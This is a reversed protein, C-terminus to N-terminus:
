FIGLFDLPIAIIGLFLFLLGGKITFDEISKAVSFAKVSELQTLEFSLYRFHSFFSGIFAVGLGKCILNEGISNPNVSLFIAAIWFCAILYVFCNINKITQTSTIDAIEIILLVLIKSLLM